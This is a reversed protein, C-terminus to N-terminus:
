IRKPLPQLCTRDLIWEFRSNFNAAETSGDVAARRLFQDLGLKLSELLWYPDLWYCGNSETVPQTTGLDEKFTLGGREIGFGHALGCRFNSYMAEALDPWPCPKPLLFEGCFDVFKIHDSGERYAFSSLGEVAGFVGHAYILVWGIERDPDMRALIRELGVVVHRNIREKLWSVWIERKELLIERDDDWYYTLDGATM